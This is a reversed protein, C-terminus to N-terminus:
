ELEGARGPPRGDVQVGQAGEAHPEDPAEGPDVVAPGLGGPGQAVLTGEGIQLELPEEVRDVRPDGGVVEVVEVVWGVAEGRRDDVAVRGEAEVELGPLDPRDDPRRAEAGVVRPEVDRDEVALSENAM